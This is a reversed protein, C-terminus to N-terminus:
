KIEAAARKWGKIKRFSLLPSDGKHVKSHAQRSPDTGGLITTLM